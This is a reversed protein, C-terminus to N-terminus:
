EQAPAEEVRGVKTARNLTLLYAGAIHGVREGGFARWPNTGKGAGTCLLEGEGPLEITLAGTKMLKRRKRIMDDTATVETFSTEVSKNPKVWYVGPKLKAVEPKAPKAKKKRPAKVEGEEGESAKRKPKPSPLQAGPVVCDAACAAAVLSPDAIVAAISPGPVLNEEPVGYYEAVAARVQLAEGTTLNETAWSMLTRFCGFCGFLKRQLKGHKDPVWAPIALRGPVRVGTATEVAYRLGTKRDTRPGGYRGIKEVFEDTVFASPAEASM